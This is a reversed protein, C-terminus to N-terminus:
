FFFPFSVSSRRSWVRWVFIEGTPVHILMFTFAEACTIMRYGPTAMEVLGSSEDVQVPSLDSAGARLAVSLAKLELGALGLFPIWDEHVAGHQLLDPHLSFCLSFLFIKPPRFPYLTFSSSDFFFLVAFM